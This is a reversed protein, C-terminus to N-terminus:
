KTTSFEFSKEHLWNNFTDIQQVYNRKTKNEKMNDIKLNKLKSGRLQNLFYQVSNLKCFDACRIPKEDVLEILRTKKAIQISKDITYM